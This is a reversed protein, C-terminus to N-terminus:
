IAALVTLILLGAMRNSQFRKLANQPNSVNLTKIQWYFHTIPLLLLIYSVITSDVLLLLVVILFIAMSYFGIIAKKVHHRFLLATSKIGAFIDDEKDQLAYITDYGLTWFIASLYLCFVPITLEGAISAYGMLIGINFTIGLFLQPWYTIRKMLPYTGVLLLSLVGMVITLFPMQLLILLSIACLSFLFIVGHKVSIVGSAIPRNQTRKVKKDLDRDWLDNIICGAGRMLIAGILFYLAFLWAQGTMGDLGGVGLMIGWWGPLLLLWWGVPRDLRMLIMYPQWNKPFHRIWSESKIDTHTM